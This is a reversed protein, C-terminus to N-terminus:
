TRGKQLEEVLALIKKDKTYERPFNMSSSFMVADRENNFRHYKAFRKVSEITRVRGTIEHKGSRIRISVHDSECGFIITRM